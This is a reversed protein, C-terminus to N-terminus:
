TVSLSTRRTEILPPVGSGSGPPATGFVKLLGESANDGSLYSGKLGVDGVGGSLASVAHQRKEACLNGTRLIGRFQYLGFGRM